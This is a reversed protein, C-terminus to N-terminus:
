HRQFECIQIQSNRDSTSQLWLLFLMATKFMIINKLMNIYYQIRETMFIYSIMITTTMTMFHHHQAANVSVWLYSWSHHFSVSKRLLNCFLNRSKLIVHHLSRICHFLFLFDYHLELVCCSFSHLSTLIQIIKLILILHLTFIKILM